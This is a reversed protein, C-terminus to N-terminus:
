NSISGVTGYILVVLFSPEVSFFFFLVPNSFSSLHPVHIKLRISTAAFFYGFAEFVFMELHVVSHKSGFHIEFIIVPDRGSLLVFTGFFCPSILPLHSMDEYSGSDTNDRITEGDMTHLKQLFQYKSRIM